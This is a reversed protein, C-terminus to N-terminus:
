EDNREQFAAVASQFTHMAAAAQFNAILKAMDEAEVEVEPAEESPPPPPPPPPPPVFKVQEEVKDNPDLSIRTQLDLANFRNLLYDAFECAGTEVDFMDLDQPRHLGM